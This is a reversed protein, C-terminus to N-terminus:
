ETTPGLLTYMDVYIDPYVTHYHFNDQLADLIESNGDNDKFCITNYRPATKHHQQSARIIAVDM